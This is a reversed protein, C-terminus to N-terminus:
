ASSTHDLGALFIGFKRRVEDEDRKWSRPARQAITAAVADGGLVRRVFELVLSREHVDLWMALDLGLNFASADENYHGLEAAEGVFNRDNNVDLYHDFLAAIDSLDKAREAPRDLWAVIKLLVIIELKAVHVGEVGSIPVVAEPAALHRFGRLNLRRDQGEFQVFGAELLAPTCPILDVIVGGPDKWRHPNQDVPHWGDVDRLTARLDDCSVAIALDVDETRRDGGLPRDHAAIGAAGVVVMRVGPFLRVLHAYTAEFAM